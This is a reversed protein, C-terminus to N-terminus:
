GVLQRVDLIKRQKATLVLWNNLLKLGLRGRVIDCGKLAHSRTLCGRSFSGADPSLLVMSLDLTTQSRASARPNTAKALQLLLYARNTVVCM